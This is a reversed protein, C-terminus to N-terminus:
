GGSTAEIAAVHANGSIQVQAPQPHHPYSQAAPVAQQLTGQEPRIDPEVVHDVEATAGHGSAHVHPPGHEGPPHGPAAPDDVARRAGAQGREILKHVGIPQDKGARGVEGPRM